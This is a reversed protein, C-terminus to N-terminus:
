SIYFKGLSFNTINTTEVVPYPSAGTLINFNQDNQKILSKGDSENFFIFNVTNPSPSLL